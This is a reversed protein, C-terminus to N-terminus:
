HVASRDIEVDLTLHQPFHNGNGQRFDFPDLHEFARRGGDVSEVGEVPDDVDHCFGSFFHFARRELEAAAGEAGDAARGNIRSFLAVDAIAQGVTM